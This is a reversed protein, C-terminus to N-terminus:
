PNMLNITSEMINTQDSALSLIRNRWENVLSLAPSSANFLRLDSKKIKELEDDNDTLASNMVLMCKKDNNGLLGM